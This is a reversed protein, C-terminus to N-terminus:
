LKGYLYPVINSLVAASLSSELVDIELPTTIIIPTGRAICGRIGEIVFQPKSLEETLNSIILLSIYDFEGVQEWSEVRHIQGKILDKILLQYCLTGIKILHYTGTSLVIGPYPFNNLIKEVDPQGLVKSHDIIEIGLEKVYQYAESDDM